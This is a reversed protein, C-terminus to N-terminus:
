LIGMKKFINAYMWDESLIYKQGIDFNKIAYPLMKDYLEKNLSDLIQNLEDVENFILMGRTDFYDGISPMGWYIPITHTMIPNILKESFYFDIKENEMAIHFMYDSLGYEIKDIPRYGRGMVDIKGRHTKIIDHRKQHDPVNNKKSTIMSVLKTKDHQRRNEFDVWCGGCPQQLFNEGQNLLTKNHTVVYDFLHNNKSIWEYIHPRKVPNEILWAIRKKHNMNVQMVVDETYFVLDEDDGVNRDWEIYKSPTMGSSIDHAFTKDIIKLKLKTM